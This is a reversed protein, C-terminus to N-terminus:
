KHTACDHSASALRCVLACHDYEVIRQCWCLASRKGVKPKAEATQRELLLAKLQQEIRGHHEETIVKMEKAYDYEWQLKSDHPSGKLAREAETAAAEASECRQRTAKVTATVILILEDLSELHLSKWDMGAHADIAKGLHLLLATSCLFGM